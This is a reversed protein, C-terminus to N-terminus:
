GRRPPGGLDRVDGRFCSIASIAGADENRNGNRGYRTVEDRPCGAGDTAGVSGSSDNGAVRRM